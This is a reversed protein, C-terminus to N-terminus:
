QEIFTLSNVDGDFDAWSTTALMNKVRQTDGPSVYVIALTGFGQLTNMSTISSPFTMTKLNNLSIAATGISTVTNAIVLNTISDCMSAATDGLSTVATGIIMETPSVNWGPPGGEPPYMIGLDIWDNYDLEGEILYASQSGDAFKLITERSTPTSPELPTAPGVDEVVFVYNTGQFTIGNTVGYLMVAKVLGDIDSMYVVEEVSSRKVYNVNTQQQDKSCSVFMISSFALWILALSKLLTKM